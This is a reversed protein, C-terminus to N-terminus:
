LAGDSIYATDEPCEQNDQLTERILRGKNVRNLADLQDEQVQMELQQYKYQDIVNKEIM